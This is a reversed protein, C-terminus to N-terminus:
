EAKDAEITAPAGAKKVAIKRPKAEEAVPITLKLVGDAYEAEVKDLAVGYGLTLQRAYTGASRERALWQLGEGEPAKRTARVTLTRDEVDIDITEADVGPVDLYAVFTEGDRVLDLPMGPGSAQSRYAQEFAREIEAFPDRFPNMRANM